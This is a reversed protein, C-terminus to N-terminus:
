EVLFLFPWQRKITAKKTKLSAPRLHIGVKPNVVVMFPALASFASATHAWWIFLGM